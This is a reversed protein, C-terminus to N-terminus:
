GTVVQLEDLLAEVDAATSVLLGKEQALQVAKKTLGKGAYLWAVCEVDPHERRYAEVAECFTKLARPPIPKQWNKQETLWHADNPKAPVGVNDIQRRRGGVPQFTIEGVDSFRPLVISGRGGFFRAADVSQGKFHHKMLYGILFEAHSGLINSVTARLSAKEQELESIRQSLRARVENSVLEENVSEIEQQFAIRLCQALMEDKMGCYSNAVGSNRIVDARALKEAKETAAWFDLGFMKAIEKTRLGSKARKEEETHEDEWKLVAFIIKKGIDDDNILHSTDAFHDLWFQQIEGATVEHQYAAKV